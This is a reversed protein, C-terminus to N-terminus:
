AESQVPFSEQLALFLHQSGSASTLIVLCRCLPLSLYFFPSLSLSLAPSLCIPSTSFAFSVCRLEFFYTSLGSFSISTKKLCSDRGSETNHLFTLIPCCLYVRVCLCKYAFFFLFICVCILIYCRSEVPPDHGWRNQHSVISFAILLIYSIISFFFRPYCFLCAKLSSFVGM